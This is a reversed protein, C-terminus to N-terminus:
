KAVKITNSLISDCMEPAPTGPTVPMKQQIALCLGKLVSVLKNGLVAPENANKGVNVNYEGPLVNDIFGGFM